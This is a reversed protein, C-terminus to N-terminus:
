PCETLPYRQLMKELWQASSFATRAKEASVEIRDRLQQDRLVMPGNTQELTGARRTLAQPRREGPFDTRLHGFDDRTLPGNEKM